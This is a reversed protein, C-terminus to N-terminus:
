TMTCQWKQLLFIDRFTIFRKLSWKKRQKISDEFKEFYSEPTDKEEVEKLKIGFDKEFKAKIAINIQLDSNGATIQFESGKSKKTETLDVPLLLLPSLIPVESRPSENGSFM